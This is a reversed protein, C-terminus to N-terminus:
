CVLAPALGRVLVLFHVVVLAPVLVLALALVRLLHYHPQDHPRPATASPAPANRPCRLASLPPRVPSRVSGGQDGLDVEGM